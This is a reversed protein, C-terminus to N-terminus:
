LWDLLGSAAVDRHNGGTGSCAVEAPFASPPQDAGSKMALLDTKEAPKALHHRGTRAALARVTSPALLPLM